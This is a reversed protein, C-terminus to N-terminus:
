IINNDNNKEIGLVERKNYSRNKFTYFIVSDEEKEIIKLIKMKFEKFQAPTLEGELVSNQIWTLYERSKKLVKSVRKTHVDYVMIIFM